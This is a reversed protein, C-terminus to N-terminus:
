YPRWMRAYPSVAFMPDMAWNYGSVYHPKMIHMKMPNRTRPWGVVFQMIGIKFEEYSIHGDRNLDLNFLVWQAIYFDVNYGFRHLCYQIEQPTIIGDRCVEYYLRQLKMERKPGWVPKYYMNAPLPQGPYMMSYVPYGQYPFVPYSTWPSTARGLGVPMTVTRGYSVGMPAGMMPAGMAPYGGPYGVGHPQYYAM